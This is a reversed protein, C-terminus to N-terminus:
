GAVNPRPGSRLEPNTRLMEEVLSFDSSASYVFRESQAVQLSNHNMVNDADSRFPTGKKIAAEWKLLPGAGLKRAAAPDRLAVRRFQELMGLIKREHSGCYFGLSLTKGIPLYIEIGPVALGLSGRPGRDTQNQMVVPNDSIYFPAETVTEFLLWTKNLIHPSLEHAETLNLCAVRKAAEADMFEYGEVESPDFGWRTVADRLAADIALMNERWHPVRSIQVAVFGALIDRDNDSLTSISRESIIQRVIGATMTELRTLGQEMSLTGERSKVEYFGSEAAVNQINTRFARDNWKDYAWLQEKSGSTFNRLLLKPVYHQIATM